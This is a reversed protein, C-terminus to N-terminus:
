WIWCIQAYGVKFQATASLEARAARKWAAIDAGHRKWHVPAPSSKDKGWQMAIENRARTWSRVLFPMLGIPRLGGDSKPLLAIVDVDILEPWRGTTECHYMVKALWELTAQSLRCIARPHIGDWGLGTGVPFTMAAQTIADVM